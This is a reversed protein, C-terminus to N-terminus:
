KFQCTCRPTFVHPSFRSFTEFRKLSRDVWFSRGAHVLHFLMPRFEAARLLPDVHQDDKTCISVLDLSQQQMMDVLDTYRGPIGWRNAFDQLKAEARNACAVLEVGAIKRYAGAYVNGARGCGIIGARYIKTTTM